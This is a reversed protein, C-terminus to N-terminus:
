GIIGKAQKILWLIAAAAIVLSLIQELYPPVYILALLFILVASLGRIRNSFVWKLFDFFDKM